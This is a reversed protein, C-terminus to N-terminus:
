FKLTLRDGGATLRRVSDYLLDDNLRNAIQTQIDPGQGGEGNEIRDSLNPQYAFLRDRSDQPMSVETLPDSKVPASTLSIAPVGLLQTFGSNEAEIAELNAAISRASPSDLTVTTAVEAMGAWVVMPSIAVPSLEAETPATETQQNAILAETSESVVQDVLVAEDPAGVM